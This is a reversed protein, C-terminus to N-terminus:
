CSENWVGESRPYLCLPGRGNGCVNAARVLIVQILPSMAVRLTCTGFLPAFWIRESNDPSFHDLPNFDRSAAFGASIPIRKFCLVYRPNSRSGNRLIVGSKDSQFSGVVFRKFAPWGHAAFLRVRRLVTKNKVVGFM